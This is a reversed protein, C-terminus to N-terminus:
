GELREQEAEKLFLGIIDAEGGCLIPSTEKKPLEVRKQLIGSSLIIKEEEEKTMIIEMKKVGRM